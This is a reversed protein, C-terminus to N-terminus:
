IRDQETVSCVIRSKEDSFMSSCQVKAFGAFFDTYRHRSKIFNQTIISTFSTVSRSYFNRSLCQVVCRAAAFGPDAHVPVSAVAKATADTSENCDSEVRKELRSDRLPREFVTKPREM